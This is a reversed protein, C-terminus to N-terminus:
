FSQPPAHPRCPIIIHRTYIRESCLEILKNYSITFKMECLSNSLLNAYPVRKITPIRQGNRGEQEIYEENFFLEENEWSEIINKRPVTLSHASHSEDNESITIDDTLSFSFASLFLATVILTLFFIQTKKIRRNM